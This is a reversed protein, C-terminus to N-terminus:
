SSEYEQMVFKLKHITAEVDADTIECYTVIRVTNKTVPCIKIVATNTGLKASEDETVQLSLTKTYSTM